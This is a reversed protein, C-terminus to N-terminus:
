DRDPQVCCHATVSSVARSCNRRDDRRRHPDLAGFAAPPLDRGRVTIPDHAFGEIVGPPRRVDRGGSDRCALQDHLVGIVSDEGTLEDATIRFGQVQILFRFRAPGGPALRCAVSQLSGTLRSTRSASRVLRAGPSEVWLTARHSTHQLPRIRSGGASVVGICEDPEAPGVDHLHGRDPKRPGARSIAASPPPKDRPGRVTTRTFAGSVERSIVHCQRNRSRETAPALQAPDDSFYKNLRRRAVSSKPHLM